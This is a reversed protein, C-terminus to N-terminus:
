AAAEFVSRTREPKRKRFPSQSSRCTTKTFLIASEDERIMSVLHGNAELLRKLEHMRAICETASDRFWAIGRTNRRYYGKSTTRNFRKPTPLHKEFWALSDRLAERNELIVDPSDCLTYALGFLGDDFGSGPHQKSLIFRLFAM